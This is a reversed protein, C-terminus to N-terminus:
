ILQSFAQRIARVEGALVQLVTEKMRPEENLLETFANSSLKVIEADWTAKATMTYPQNGFVAPLGLLSGRGARIRIEKNGALMTLTVEGWKVFYICDGLQGQRFLIGDQSIVEESREIIKKALGRDLICELTPIV